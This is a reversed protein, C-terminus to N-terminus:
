VVGERPCDRTLPCEECNPKSPRCWKQGIDWAASDLEGPFSPHLKRAAAIAAKKSATPLILGARRFVRMVHIDPAIDLQPLADKGGLLGKDRALILVAMRSLKSGIGPIEELRKLVKPIDRQNNWIKRPDGGYKELILSAAKPLQTAFSKYFITFASGGRGYRLFGILRRKEITKLEKWLTGVDGPDGLSDNIWEGAEWARDATIFKDFMVGLLFANARTTTLKNNTSFSGWEKLVKRSYVVLSNIIPRRQDARKM